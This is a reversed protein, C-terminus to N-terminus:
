LGLEELEARIADDMSGELLLEMLREADTGWVRDGTSEAVHLRLQAMAQEVGGGGRLPRRFDIGMGAAIMESALAFAALRVVQRFKLASTMGMSVHDEKGGSTPTNDTCAPHALVRAENLAAAVSVHLMMLGSELGPHQALFAPLGESSDPNVMREMRRECISMLQVMAICAADFALALPAGHFNGGSLIDGTEAFVLPNDTAAGTENEVTEQVYELMGLVTGHVQPMCRLAYADQVRRDHERHSERIESGVMADRLWRAVTVQGEHRRVEHIREDFATPTGLLAELSMAGIRTAWVTLRLADELALAGVSLMAQTGNLLSLGEKAELTLAQLGVRQLAAGGPAGELTAGEGILVLALHALPALDGCAGVSGRSPIRPLVEHERLSLMLAAVEPRAGSRGQALVNARLALLLRVERASLPEGFGCAHSRVLNLQLTELEGDSVAVDSLRGFGTNVGYVPSGSALRDVVVQRSAAMRERASGALNAPSGPESLQRLESLSLTQGDLTM